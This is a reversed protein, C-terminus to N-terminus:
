AHAGRTAAQGLRLVAWVDRLDPRLDECRVRAGARETAREIPLCHHEPVHGRRKWASPTSPRVGVAEALERDSGLVVVATRLATLGASTDEQSIKPHPRRSM